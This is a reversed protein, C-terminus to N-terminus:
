AAFYRISPRGGGKPQLKDERLQGSEKLGEIIENRDKRKLFQTARSLDGASIGSNGAGKIVKFVRKVVAEQENEASEDKIARELFRTSWFVLDFAKQLSKPRLIPNGPDRVISDIMALKITNEAIRTWVVGHRTVMKGRWIVMEKYMEFADDSWKVVTVDPVFDSINAGAIDGSSPINGRIASLFSLVEDPLPMEYDNEFNPDPMKDADFFIMRPLTGDHQASSKLAPRLTEMTTSGYMCWIPNVIDSSPRAKPDAYQTGNYTSSSASYLELMRKGIDRHHPSAKPDVIGQLFHGVEDIMNLRSPYQRLMSEIASGSAFNDGGVMQSMGVRTMLDKIKKRSHDKGSGSPAVGIIFINTRTSYKEMRYNRGFITGFMALTNALALEPHPYQATDVVWRAVRGVMSRNDEFWAAYPFSGDPIKLTSVETIEPEPDPEAEVVQLCPASLLRSIDGEIDSTDVYGQHFDLDAPPAWGADEALKFLTGAGIRVPRSRSYSLWRAETERPDYKASGKSFEHFAEGAWAEGGSAAFLAMGIRNWDDWHLDPNQIYALASLIADGHATLGLEGAETPPMTGDYVVELRKQAQLEPPLAAHAAELAAAVQEQTVVPLLGMPTDFLNDEPWSYESGTDPHISYAVFQQGRCLAEIPGRRMKSFPESTRYVLLCKPAKGIRKLPTNGLHQRIIVEVDDAADHDLIDIDIAVVNGCAVGIGCDPFTSWRDLEGDTAPTDCFSTWGTMETWGVGRGDYYTGPKKTGPRIPIVHYGFNNIMRGYAQMYNVGM